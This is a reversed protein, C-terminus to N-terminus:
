CLLFLIFQVLGIVWIEKATRLRIFRGMLEPSMSDILWGKVRLNETTWVDFNPASETPMVISGTLYGLKGRTAIRIEMLQSWLAYNTQNLIVRAPLAFNDNQINVIHPVLPTASQAAFTSSSHPLDLASGLTTMVTSISPRIFEIYTPFPYFFSIFEIYTQTCNLPNQSLFFGGSRTSQYWTSIYTQTFVKNIRNKEM